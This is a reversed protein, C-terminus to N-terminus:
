TVLFILTLFFRPVPVLLVLFFKLTNFIHNSPFNHHCVRIKVRRKLNVSIYRWRDIPLLSLEFFLWYCEDTPLKSVCFTIDTKPIIFTPVAWKSHDYSEEELVGIQCLRNVEKRLTEQHIFLVPYAKRHYPHIREKLELKVPSTDWCVLTGDFLIKYKYLLAVLRYCEGELFHQNRTHVVYTLYAKEYSVDLIKEVRQTSELTSTPELTKRYFQYMIDVNQLESLPKMPLTQGDLKITQSEFDLVAGLEKM